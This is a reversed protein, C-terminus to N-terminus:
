GMKKELPDSAEKDQTTTIVHNLCNCVKEVVVAVSLALFLQLHKIFSLQKKREKSHHRNKIGKVRGEM